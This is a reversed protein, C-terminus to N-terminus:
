IRISRGDISRSAGVAHDQDSGFLPPGAITAPVQLRVGANALYGTSQGQQIGTLIYGHPGLRECVIADLWVRLHRRLQVGPISGPISVPTFIKDAARRM